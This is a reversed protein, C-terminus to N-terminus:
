PTQAQIIYFHKTGPLPTDSYTTDSVTVVFTAPTPTFGPVTGRYVNYEVNSIPLGNIDTTVRNWHLKVGSTIPAIVLNEPAAPEAANLKSTTFLIARGAQLSAAGPIDPSSLNFYSYLVGDTQDLNEIGVTCYNNSASADVTNNCTEYQFLIEGDGTPTAPYGPEYLICEFTEDYFTSSGVYKLVNSWEIIFRHNAADHYTYVGAPEPPVYREISLTYNGSSYSGYGTVDICYVHGPSLILNEIRSLYNSSYNPGNCVDDSCAIEIGDELVVLRTDYATTGTCTTVIVTEVVSPTYQYFVDPSNGSGCLTPTYIAPSGSTTSDFSAPLSPIIRANECPNGAMSINLNYAGGGTEYYYGCEIYVIQGATLGIEIQPDLNGCGDDNYVSAGTCCTGATWLRFYTDGDSNCMDFHYTGTTPVTYRYFVDMYPRGSCDDAAGLTGSTAYTEGTIATATACTEGGQDLSQGIRQATPAIGLERYLVDLRSKLSERVDDPEDAQLRGEILDIEAKLALNRGEDVEEIEANGNQQQLSAAAPVWLDDWFPAIMRTPGIASPINYNRFDTIDSQDAGMALWGNSCITITDFEEGYYRFTFPLPVITSTDAENNEDTLPVVTGSGGSRPDIEVWSYTPHKDYNVDTNDFAWYGYGDPPTPSTSSISGIYLNFRITDLFGSTLPFVCVLPIREGPFASATATISFTNSQNDSSDGAAASPFIGVNDTITVAANESYLNGTLNSPTAQSGANIFRVWLQGSEGPDLIGDGVGAIGHRLYEFDGNAIAIPIESIWTHSSGDTVTLTFHVVHGAPAYSAVTFAFANTRSVTAGSAITGYSETNDGIATIYSDVTSLTANVGSASSSGWNKLALTLQTTAGPQAAPFASTAPSVFQTSTSIWVRKQAPKHNHKTATVYLSEASTTSFNFRVQGAGDTWDGVYIETGKVLNVYAGEVPQGSGNTITLNLFNTGIPLSAPNNVFLSDPTDTFVDVAPDGLLTTIGCFFNVRESDVPYNYYLELKSRTFSGGTTHIGERLLGQATGTILLNNFRTHTALSSMGVIGIAGEPYTPTGVKFFEECDSDYTSAFDNTGCTLVLAFPWRGINNLNALGSYDMGLYGRYFWLSTGANFSANMETTGVSGHIWYVTDVQSSPYGSGTLRDHVWRMTQVPSLGSGSGAFVGASKYWNRSGSGLTDSPSQEYRLTKNVLTALETVAQFTLRGIAIDPLLDTGDLKTYDYDGVGPGYHGEPDPYSYTPIIYNGNADGALCVYELPPNATNYLAQIYAKVGTTTWDSIQDPGATVVPHGKRNRWTTLPALTSALTNDRYIFLSTGRVVIDDLGLTNWNPVVPRLLDATTETIPRSYSVATGSEHIRFEVNQLVSLKHRAPNYKVANILLVAVRVGGMTQKASITCTQEPLFEDQDLMDLAYDTRQDNTRSAPIRYIGDLEIWDETMIELSPNGEHQLGIFRAIVPLDPEGEASIPLGDPLYVEDFPENGISVPEIGIGPVSLQVHWAQTNEAQVTLEPAQLTSSNATSIWEAQSYSIISLLVFLCLATRKM